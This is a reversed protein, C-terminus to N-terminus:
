DAGGNCQPSILPCSDNTGEVHLRQVRKLNRITIEFRNGLLNGRDLLVDQVEVFTSLQVREGLSDNACQVRALDVNRLTCFQYTIAQMDKIGALGIESARCRLARVVNQIAVQHECQQKRLVCFVATINSKRKPHPEKSINSGNGVQDARKRKKQSSQIANFSWQVVIATTLKANKDAYDLPVDPKTSTAFERRRSSVLILHIARRESRPLDPRLRLLVVGESVHNAKPINDGTKDGPQEEEKPEQEKRVNRQNRKPRSRHKSMARSDGEKGLAPKPGYNRLKYLLPLDELPNSLYPAAPFFTYDILVCVWSKKADNNSSDNIGSDEGVRNSDIAGGDGSKVSCDSKENSPGVSSSETRLLPFAQRVYRHLLTWDEKGTMHPAPSNQFLQATPIWMKKGDSKDSSVDSTASQELGIEELGMKQLDTLQELINDVATEREKQSTHNERTDDNAKHNNRWHCQILIRRLGEMPNPDISKDLDEDDRVKAPSAAFAPEHQLTQPSSQPKAPLQTL